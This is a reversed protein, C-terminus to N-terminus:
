ALGLKVSLASERSDFQWKRVGGEDLGLEILGPALEYESLNARAGHFLCQFVMSRLGM